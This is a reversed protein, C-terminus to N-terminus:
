ALRTKYKYTEAVPSGKGNECGTLLALLSLMACVFAVAKQIKRM